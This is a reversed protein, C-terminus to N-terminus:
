SGSNKPEDAEGAGLADLMRRVEIRNIKLRECLQGESLLGQDYAEAALLSLKPTPVSESQAPPDGLIAKM